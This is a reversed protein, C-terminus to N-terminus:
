PTLSPEPSRESRRRHHHRHRHHEEIRQLGQRQEDTLHPTMQRHAENLIARVRQGTDSRVQQLQGAARDVIPSIKAVQERSLNLEHQLRGLMRESFDGRHHFRFFFHRAQSAGLFAGTLGGAVFVLLFGAILKWKLARNM